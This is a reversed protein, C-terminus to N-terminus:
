LGFRPVSKAFDGLGSPPNAQLRGDSLFIESPEHNVSSFRRQFHFQRAIVNGSVTLAEPNLASPDDGTSFRGCGNSAQSTILPCVGPNGDGLVIFTGAIESVNPAVIVDGKVIWVVSPLRALKPIDDAYDQYSINGTIKLNGNVVVIGAGSKPNGVSGSNFTGATTTANGDVYFVRNDLPNNPVAPLTATTDFIDDIVGQADQTISVISRGYKNTGSGVTGTVGTILGTYDLGGLVNRYVGTSGVQRPFIPANLSREYVYQSEESYWNTIDGSAEIIYASNYKGGPPPAPSYINGESFVSKADVYTQNGVQSESGFPIWGFGKVANAPKLAAVIHAARNPVASMDWRTTVSSAIPVERTSMVLYSSGSDVSSRTIQSSAPTMVFGSGNGAVDVIWSYERLSTISTEIFTYPESDDFSREFVPDEDQKVGKLSVAGAALFQRAPNVTVDVTYSGPKRPLDIDKIYWLAATGGTGADIFSLQTMNVGDFKVSEITTGLETYIGVLVMRATNLGSQVSVNPLSFSSPPSSGGNLSASMNACTGSTDNCIIRGAENPEEYANWAWGCMEYERTNPAIENVIVGTYDTCQTCSSADCTNRAFEHTCRGGIDEITCSNCKWCLINPNPNSTAHEADTSVNLCADCFNVSCAGASVASCTSDLTCTITNDGSCVKRCGICGRLKSNPAIVRTGQYNPDKPNRTVDDSFPFTVLAKDPRDGDWIAPILGRFRKNPLPGWAGTSATYTPTNLVHFPKANDATYNQFRVGYIDLNGCNSGTVNSDCQYTPGPGGNFCIWGYQASWACGQLWDGTALGAPEYGWTTNGSAVTGLDIHAGYGASASTCQYDLAGDNDFDNICNLSIWGLGTSLEGSLATANWGWGRVNHQFGALAKGFAFGGIIVATLIGVFIVSRRRLPQM